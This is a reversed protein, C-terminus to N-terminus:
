VNMFCGIAEVSKLVHLGVRLQAEHKRGIGLPFNNIFAQSARFDNLPSFYVRSM